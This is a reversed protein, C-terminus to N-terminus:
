VARLEASHQMLAYIRISPFVHLQTKPPHPAEHFVPNQATRYGGREM